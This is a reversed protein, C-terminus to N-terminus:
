IIQRLTLWENFSQESEASRRGNLLGAIDIQQKLASWEIIHGDSQLQWNKQEDATAHTLRPYWTLPVSLIRGDSFNVTLHQETIAVATALPEKPTSKIVAAPPEEATAPLEPAFPVEVMKTTKRRLQELKKEIDGIRNSFAQLHLLVQGITQEPTLVALEWKKLLQPLDYHSM